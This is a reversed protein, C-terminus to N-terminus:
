DQMAEEDDIQEGGNMYRNLKENIADYMATINDNPVAFLVSPFIKIRSDSMTVDTDLNSIINYRKLLRVTDKLITKDLYSKVDIKLMNYKQQIEDVLVVVDENLSLEKRKEIYLLRVILLIVSEIKRMRLRGTGNISTLSVVGHIDNIEIKYGLLDFYEIFLDKNQIIFIYDSRTDEKKKIIFCNNLLKNAAVRFKEKQVLSERFVEM